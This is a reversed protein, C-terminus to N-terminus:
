PVVRRCGGHSVVLTEDLGTPNSAVEIASPWADALEWRAIVGLRSDTLTLTARQTTIGGAEIAARWSALELGDTAPRTLTLDTQLLRGPLVEDTASVLANSSGVGRVFPFTGLMAGEVELEFVIEPPPACGVCDDDHGEDVPADTGTTGGCAVTLLTLAVVLRLM